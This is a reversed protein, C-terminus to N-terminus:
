FNFYKISFIFYQRQLAIRRKRIMIDGKILSFFKIDRESNKFFTVKKILPLKNACTMLKQEDGIRVRKNVGSFKPISDSKSAIEVMMPLM